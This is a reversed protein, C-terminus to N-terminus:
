PLDTQRKGWASDGEPFPLLSYLPFMIIEQSFRFMGNQILRTLKRGFICSSAHQKTEVPLVRLSLYYFFEGTSFCITMLKWVENFASIREKINLKLDETPFLKFDLWLVSTGLFNQFSSSTKKMFLGRLLIWTMTLALKVILTVALHSYTFFAECCRHLSRYNKFCIATMGPPSAAEKQSLIVNASNNCWFRQSCSVSSFGLSGM